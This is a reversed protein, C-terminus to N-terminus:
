PLMKNSFYTLIQSLNTKQNKLERITEALNREMEGTSEIPTTTHIDRTTRSNNRLQISLLSETKEHRKNLMRFKRMGVSTSRITLLVHNIKNLWFKENNYDKMVEKSQYNNHLTIKLACILETLDKNQQPSLNKKKTFMQIDHKDLKPNIKYYDQFQKSIQFYLTSEKYDKGFM